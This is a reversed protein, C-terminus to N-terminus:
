QKVMKFPSCKIRNEQEAKQVDDPLCGDAKGSPQVQKVFKKAKKDYKFIIGPRPADPHKEVEEKAGRQYIAKISQKDSCFGPHWYYLDDKFSFVNYGADVEAEPMSIVELQNIKEKPIEFYLHFTVDERDSFYVRLFDMSLISCHEVQNGISDM